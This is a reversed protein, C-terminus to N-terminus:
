YRFVAALPTRDPTEELKVVFVTGGNLITQISAFDLLDEAGPEAKQHLHVINNPLDFTGWQQFDVAVFLLDIRGFYAAPVIEKIDKSTRGTGVLQRYQAVAEKQKKQFYPQVIAWAKENLKEASMSEPNGKIGEDTLYPYSNAERYIPFLYDVGALVLPAQEERLLERLGKDIQRFYRRINDKADDTIAHGHFIAAGTPTGSHSQLQKEPEDYKLAEALSKPIGELHIESIVNRTGQFLKVENQSLALIYFQGDSTHLRLLPKLHFRDAVVVLEEFDFPLHYYRFIKSSLFMALGNGQRWFPADWFLEQAPELLEKAELPRLGSTILQEEVERLAKKFRIQNQQSEVGGRYTPMFVSVCLGRHEEILKKLEDKTLLNM